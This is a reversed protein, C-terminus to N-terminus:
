VRETDLPQRGNAPLAAPAPTGATEAPQALAQNIALWGQVAPEGAQAFARALLKSQERRLSQELRAGSRTLQLLRKRKDDSAASSEILQMELLQRLPINLAQKSVGLLGLLQSVSLGPQCASFFLIRHHMRSLGRRALMDDAKRTFAQYGFFFASMAAQQAAPKKLDPM